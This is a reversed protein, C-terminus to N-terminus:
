PAFSFPVAALTGIVNLSGPTTLAAFWTYNGAPETGTFTFNFIPGTFDPVSINSVLPTLTTGFGGGPQMFLLTGDPLQLAVYVDANAVPNSAATTATLTMVNNTTSNFAFPAMGNLDLAVGPIAPPTVTLNVGTGALNVAATFDILPSNDTVSVAPATLVGATLVGPLVNGAVLVSTNLGAVNVDFAGSATLDATGGVTLKGFSAASSAGIRLKGGAQQTYNGAISGTVGDPIEITGANNVAAAGVVSLNGKLLGGAQNNITGGLSAPVNLSYAKAINGPQSVIASITGSNTLVAGAAISTVSIGTAGEFVTTTAANATITGTNAITGALTAVNIGRATASRNTGSPLADARISGSNTLTGGASIMTIAIGTASASTSTGIVQAKAQINGSNTLTGSLSFALIGIATATSSNTLEIATASITGSNTLTGSIDGFVQIARASPTSGSTQALASITGRNDLTGALGGNINVATASSSNTANAKITGFNTLISAADLPGAFNIAVGRITQSILGGAQNTITTGTAAANVQMAHGLSQRGKLTGGNTINVGTALADVVIASTNFTAPTISGTNTLTISDTATATCTGNLVASINASIGTGCSGSLASADEPGSALLGGAVLAACLLKSVAGRSKGKGGASALEDAVVWQHRAESWLIRYNRNL